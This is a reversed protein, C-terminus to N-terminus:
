EPVGDNVQSCAMRLTGNDDFILGNFRLLSGVSPPTSNLMQTSSDVYVVVTGPNSLINTQLPQAALTPFLNYSALAVTYMQYSGSSSVGTVTGNITQPMLTVTTAPTYTCCVFELALSSVYVSQGDVISSADFRAPFPLGQLNAFQGSTQFITGAGVTYPTANSLTAGQDQLSFVNFINSCCAQYVPGIVVNLAAPDEVAIRTAMLSGDSQIAADMDVFIGTSLASFGSIGQYLTSSDANFSLAQGSVTGAGFTNDPTLLTFGASSPSGAVGSVVGDIGTLKGNRASSPQSAVTIASLNFTPTISYAAPFNSDYCGPPVSASQSAQLDLLLGMSTGSVTIPSSLKMTASQTGLSDAYTSFDVAGSAITVCSFSSGVYTLAASTYVDQPVSVTLLPAPLGNSHIFEVKPSNNLLSVNKGAKNTLTISSIQPLWYSFLQDNATSSTLLAVNTTQGPIPEGPQITNGSGCGAVFSASVAVTLGLLIASSYPGHRRSLLSSIFNM